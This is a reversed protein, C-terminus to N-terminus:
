RTRRQMDIILTIPTRMECFYAMRLYLEASVRKRSFIAAIFLCTPRYIANM